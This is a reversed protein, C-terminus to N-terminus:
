DALYEEDEAVWNAKARKAGAELRIQPINHLAFDTL